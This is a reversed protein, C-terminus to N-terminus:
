DKLNYTPWNARFWETGFVEPHNKEVMERTKMEDALTLYFDESIHIGIGFTQKNNDKYVDIKKKEGEYKNKLREAKKPPFKEYQIVIDAKGDKKTVILNTIGRVLYLADMISKVEEKPVEIDSLIEERLNEPLIDSRQLDKIAVLFKYRIFQDRQEDKVYIFNEAPGVNLRDIIELPLELPWVHANYKAEIFNHLMKWACRDEKIQQSNRLLKLVQLLEHRQLSVEKSLQKRTLPYYSNELTVLVKKSAEEISFLKKRGKKM